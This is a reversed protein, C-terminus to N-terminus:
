TRRRGVCGMNCLMVRRVAPPAARRLMAQARSLGGAARGAAVCPQLRHGGCATPVPKYMYTYM